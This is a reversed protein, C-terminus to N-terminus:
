ESISAGKKAGEQRFIRRDVFRQIRQKLPDFLAAIALASVIIALWSGEQQTIALFLEQTVEDITVFIGAIV